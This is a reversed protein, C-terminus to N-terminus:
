GESVSECPPRPGFESLLWAPHHHVDTLPGTEIQSRNSQITLSSHRIKSSRVTSDRDVPNFLHQGEGALLQSRYVDAAETAGMLSAKIAPRM